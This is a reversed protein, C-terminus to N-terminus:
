LTRCVCWIQVSAAGHGLLLRTIEAATGGTTVVDDIVSIHRGKVLIELSFARTLNNKRERASLQHQVRTARTRRLAAPYYAVNLAHALYRALYDSQNFGRRWARRHHLPVALLLDPRALRSGASRVRLAILRALAPALAIQGHFKLRRVLQSLPPQYDGAALLAQWLPPKQLCRGCAVTQSWAPLGCRPCCPVSLFVSRQCRSCIGWHPLALPSLCLWCLGPITLM